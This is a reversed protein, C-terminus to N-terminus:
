SVARSINTEVQVLLPRCTARAVKCDGVLPDLEVYGKRRSRRMMRVKQGVSTEAEIHTALPVYPGALLLVMM